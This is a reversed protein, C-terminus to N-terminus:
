LRHSGGKEFARVAEWVGVNTAKRPGCGDERSKQSVESEVCDLRSEM